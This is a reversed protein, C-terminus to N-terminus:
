SPCYIRLSFAHALRVFASLKLSPRSSFQPGRAIAEFLRASPSLGLKPSRRPPGPRGPSSRAPPSARTGGSERLAIFDQAPIGGGVVIEYTSRRKCAVTKLAPSSPSPPGACAVRVGVIHVQVKPRARRWKKRHAFLPGIRRRIGLDAFASASSEKHGRDHWMSDWRPPRPRPAPCENEAFSRTMAIV